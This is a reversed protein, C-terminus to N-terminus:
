SPAPEGAANCRGAVERVLNQLSLRASKAYHQDIAQQVIAEVRARLRCAAKSSRVPLFTAAVNGHTRLQRLLGWVRRPTIGFKAAARTVDVTTRTGVPSRALASLVRRRHEAQELDQASYRLEDLGNAYPEIPDASGTPLLLAPDTVVDGGASSRLLVAEVRLIRQM